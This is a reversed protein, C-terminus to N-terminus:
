RAQAEVPPCYLGLLDRRWWAAGDGFHTFHYHYIEARLYRPPHDPFPNNELLALVDPSGRFLCGLFRVFWMNERIDGLAAFWMQWDLRPQHPAVLRPRALVDGPKWRFEYTRWHEGDNSGEVIIERRETTMVRFLGYSNFSRWPSVATAVSRPWNSPLISLTALHTFRGIGHLIEGEEENGASLSGGLQAGTVVVLLVSPVAFLWPLWRVGASKPHDSGLLFRRWRAPWFLDDLLPICLLITLWNFFAYNGTALIVVQLGIMALAASRRLRRPAFILFPVVIEIFYVTVTEAKLIWLPSQAAYWATWLPLPQTEYHYTLATLDRWTPDGSSLKVVGSEFMLRFTLWWLLWRGLTSLRSIENWKPRLRWPLYIAALLATELLLTDWQFDLFPSGISCFSLYLGWCLLACAGPCFGGIMVGSLVIGALCAGTLTGDSNGLWFISPAELSASSGLQEHAAALFESAPMIGRSGLLGLLQVELSLFACFFILGLGRAFIQRSFAFTTLSPDLGWAFRTLLSLFTRNRAVFRYAIRSAALFGPIATFFGVWRRLWPVIEFMRFVADAGSYRAGDTDVLQVAKQFDEAPIEPLHAAETQSPEYRVLDGTLVRCREIWFRCFRCDGDFVLL